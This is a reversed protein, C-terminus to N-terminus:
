ESAYAPACGGCLKQCIQGCQKCIKLKTIQHPEQEKAVRRRMELGKRDWLVCKVREGNTRAEFPLCIFTEGADDCRGGGAFDVYRGKVLDTLTSLAKGILAHKNPPVGHAELWHARNATIVVDDPLRPPPPQGCQPSFWWTKLAQKEIARWVNPNENSADIADLPLDFPADLVWGKSIANLLRELIMQTEDISEKRCERVSPAIDEAADGETPAAVEAADCESPALAAVVESRTLNRAAAKADRRAEAKTREEALREKRKALADAKRAAIWAQPDAAIAEAMMTAAEAEKRAEMAAVAAEKRAMAVSPSEPDAMGAAASGNRAEVAAVAAATVIPSEPDTMQAVAPGKRAQAAASRSSAKHVPRDALEAAEASEETCKARETKLGRIFARFNSLAEDLFITKEDRSLFPLASKICCEASYLEPDPGEGRERDGWQVVNFLSPDSLMSSPANSNVRELDGGEYHSDGFMWMGESPSWRLHVDVKQAMTASSLRVCCAPPRHRSKAIRARHLENSVQSDSIM